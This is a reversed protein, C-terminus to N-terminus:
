RRVRVRNRKGFIRKWWPVDRGTRHRLSRRATQKMRKRTAKDQKNFHQEQAGNWGTRLEAEREAEKEDASKISEAVTKPTQGGGRRRQSNADTTLITLALVALLIPRPM